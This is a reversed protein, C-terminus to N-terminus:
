HKIGTEGTSLIQELKSRTICQPLVFDEDDYLKIDFKRANLVKTILTMGTNDFAFVRCRDRKSNFTVVTIPERGDWCTGYDDSELKHRLSFIGSRGSVAQLVVLIRGHEPLIAM